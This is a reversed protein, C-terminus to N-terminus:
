KSNAELFRVNLNPMIPPANLDGCGLNKLVYRLGINVFESQDRGTALSVFALHQKLNKDLVFTGKVQEPVAPKQAVTKRGKM